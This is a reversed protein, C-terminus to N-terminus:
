LNLLLIENKDSFDDERRNFIMNNDITLKIDIRIRVENM